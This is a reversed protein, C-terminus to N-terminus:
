LLTDYLKKLQETVKDPLSSEISEICGVRMERVRNPNYIIMELFACLQSKDGPTVLWGNRSNIIEPIGGVRTSLIPMGYSLSELIAIPLGEIYSPLVFVDCMNFLEIKRVGSVWGEYIVMEDLRNESIVNKLREVQGNGGIHLVIKNSFLQRNDSLVDLLEFIGKDDDILGLFLLHMKEDYGKKEQIHPKSVINNVTWVNSLGVENKFFDNWGDTLAVIAECSSLLHKIKRPNTQYFDKFGGGHIHLVVKKRYFHALRVFYMSRYFSNRSATHIHVIKIQRDVFLVWVMNLWGSTALWLNRLKGSQSNVVCKFSPYVEQSYTYVVQAVGGKPPNYACSITLISNSIEQNLM